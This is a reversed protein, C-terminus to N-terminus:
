LQVSTSDSKFKSLDLTTCTSESFEQPLRSSVNQVNLYKIQFTHDPIRKKLFVWLPYELGDGDDVIGIERCPSNAIKDVANIYKSALGKGHVTLYGDERRMMLISRPDEAASKAKPLSVLPHHVPVLGYSVGMCILTGALLTKGRITWAQQIFFAVVPISLLFFPLLLRNAWIQWKLLSVYLGLGLGIVILAFRFIESLSAREIAARNRQDFLRWGIYLLAAFFLILYLPSGVSDESPRLYERTTEPLFNNGSFTTAQDAINWGLRHHLSVVGQWVIEVPMNLSATRLLNSCITSFNFVTNRTGAPDGLFSDFIQINRIWSPLSLTCTFGFIIVLSKFSAGLSSIWNRDVYSSQRIERIAMWIAIPIGFIIGTPKTVVALGLAAGLWLNDQIRSNQHHLILCVASLLWFSVLLDNQTTTSQMIAMPFTACLLGAFLQIDAGILVKSILSISLISGAFAIWQLTNAAYDGGALLHFHMLIYASGPPFSIQRLNSTPYHAVSHNQIWHMIRPLHYTMSDYNNPTALVATIGCIILILIIGVAIAQDLGNNQKFHRVPNIWILRPLNLLEFGQHKSITEKRLLYILVVLHIAALIMWFIGVASYTVDATLSLLETVLVILVGHLLCAKIFSLRFRSQSSLYFIGTCTLLSIVALLISM